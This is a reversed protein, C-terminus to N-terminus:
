RCKRSGHGNIHCRPEPNEGGRQFGGAVVITENWLLTATHQDSAGAGDGPIPTSAAWTDTGPDYIQTADTSVPAGSSTDVGGIVVIWGHGGAVPTLGSAPANALMTATHDYVPVVMEDTTTWRTRLKAPYSTPGAAWELKIQCSRTGPDALKRGWPAKPDTDVTCGTVDVTVDIRSGNDSLLYPPALRLRPAGEDDVFEVTDGVLRVAAVDQKLSVDYVLAEVDPQTEFSRESRPVVEIRMGGSGTLEFAADRDRDTSAPSAMDATGLSAVAVLCAGAVRLGLLGGSM